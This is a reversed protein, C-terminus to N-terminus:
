YWRASCNLIVAKTGGLATGDDLTVAYHNRGVNEFKAGNSEALKKAGALTKIILDKENVILKYGNYSVEYSNDNYKNLITVEVEKGCVINKAVAKINLTKM